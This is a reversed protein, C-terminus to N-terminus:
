AAAAKTLALRRFEQLLTVAVDAEGAQGALRLRLLTRDLEKRDISKVQDALILNMGWDAFLRRDVRRNSLQQVATHRPDGSVRTFLSAVRMPEGELVQLFHCGSYLLLGSIGQAENKERCGEVLAALEGEAM